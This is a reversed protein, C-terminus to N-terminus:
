APKKDADAAAIAAPTAPDTATTVTTTVAATTTVTTTPPDPPISPPADIDVGFKDKLVRKIFRRGWPAVFGAMLGKLIKVGKPEDAFLGPLYLAGTVGLLVPWAPAIKWCLHQIKVLWKNKWGASIRRVVWIVSFVGVILGGMEFNLFSGWINSADM